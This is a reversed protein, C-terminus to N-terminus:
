SALTKTSSPEVTATAMAVYQVDGGIGSQNGAEWQAESVSVIRVDTQAIALDSGAVMLLALVCTLRCFGLRRSTLNNKSMNMVTMVRLRYVILVLHNGGFRV